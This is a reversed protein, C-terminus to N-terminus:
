KVYFYVIGAIVLIIAIYVIKVIISQENKEKISTEADIPSVDYGVSKIYNISENLAPVRQM